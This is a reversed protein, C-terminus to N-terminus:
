QATAARSEVIVVGKIIIVNKNPTVGEFHVSDQTITLYNRRKSFSSTYYRNRGNLIQYM